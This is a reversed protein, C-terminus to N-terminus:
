LMLPRRYHIFKSLTHGRNSSVHKQKEELEMEQLLEVDMVFNDNKFWDGGTNNQKSDSSNIVESEVGSWAVEPSQTHGTDEQCLKGKSGAKEATINVSFSSNSDQAELPDDEENEKECLTSWNSTHVTTISQYAHDLAQQAETVLLTSQTQNAQLTSLYGTFLATVDQGRSVYVQSVANCLQAASIKEAGYRRTEM